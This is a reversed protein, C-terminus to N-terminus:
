FTAGLADVNCSEPAGFGGYNVVLGSVDIDDAFAGASQHSSASDHIVLALGDGPTARRDSSNVATVNTHTVDNKDRSAYWM